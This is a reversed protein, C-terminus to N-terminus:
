RRVAGSPLQPSQAFAVRGLWWAALTTATDVVFRPADPVRVGSTPNARATINAVAVGLLTVALVPGFSWGRAGMVGGAVMGFATDRDILPQSM